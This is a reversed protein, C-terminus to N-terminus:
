IWSAIWSPINLIVQKINQISAPQYHGLVCIKVTEYYNPIRLRDFEALIMLCIRSVAARILIVDEWFIKMAQFQQSHDVSLRIYGDM